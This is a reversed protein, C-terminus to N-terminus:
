ITKEQGAVKANERTIVDVIAVLYTSKLTRGRKKKYKRLLLSSNRLRTATM